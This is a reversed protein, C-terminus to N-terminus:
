SIFKMKRSRFFILNVVIRSLVLLVKLCFIYIVMDLDTLPKGQRLTVDPDLEDVIPRCEINRNHADNNQLTKLTGERYLDGFM